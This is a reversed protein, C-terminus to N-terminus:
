FHYHAGIGFNFYSATFGSGADHTIFGLHPTMHLRPAIPMDMGAGVEFGLNRDGSTDDTSLAHAVIGARGWLLADPPSPFIFKLGGAIGSSRLGGDLDCDSGCSFGHRNLGVYATLNPRFTAMLEAGFGLGAEAGANSLDGTPFTVGVRGEGSFSVQASLGDAPLLLAFTVLLMSLLAFRISM